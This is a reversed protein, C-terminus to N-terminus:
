GIELVADGMYDVHLIKLNKITNKYQNEYDRSFMDAWFDEYESQGPNDLIMYKELEKYNGKDTTYSVILRYVPHSIRTKIFNKPHTNMLKERIKEDYIEFTDIGIRIGCFGFFESPHLM